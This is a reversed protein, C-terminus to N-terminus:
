TEQMRPLLIRSIGSLTPFGEGANIDRDLVSFDKYFTRVPDLINRKGKGAMVQAIKVLVSPEMECSSSFIYIIDLSVVDAALADNGM